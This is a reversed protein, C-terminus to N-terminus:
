YNIVYEFAWGDYASAFIVNDQEPSFYLNEDDAEDLGSSWNYLTFNENKHSIEDSSAKGDAKSIVDKAFLEGM